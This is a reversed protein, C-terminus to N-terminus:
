FRDGVNLNSRWLNTYHANQYEYNHTDVNLTSGWLITFDANQM